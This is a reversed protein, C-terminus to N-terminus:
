EELGEFAGGVIVGDESDVVEVLGSGDEEM